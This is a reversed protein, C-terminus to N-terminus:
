CWARRASARLAHQRRRRVAEGSRAQRAVREAARVELRLDALDIAGRPWLLRVHPPLAGAAADPDLRQSRGDAGGRHRRGQHRSRAERRLLGADVVRPRGAQRARHLRYAGLRRARHGPQHHIERHLPPRASQRQRGERRTPQRAAAEDQLRDALHPHDGRRRPGHGPQGVVDDFARRSRPPHGGGRDDGQPHPKRRLRPRGPDVAVPSPLGDAHRSTRRAHEQHVAAHSQHLLAACQRAGGGEHHGACPRRGRGRHPLRPHHPGQLGRDHGRCLGVREAHRLPDDGARRARRRRYLCNDIAAPTTGWDEHLKLACAGALVMEHLAGPLSANGKGAFGLNMPFSDAAEIMRALHWPGPTCTTAFTGTAPGTGGGLMSTVGSM